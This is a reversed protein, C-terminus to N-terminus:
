RAAHIEGDASKRQGLLCNGDAEQRASFTLKIKNQKNPSYALM